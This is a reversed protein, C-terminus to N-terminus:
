IRQHAQLVDVTRPQKPRATPHMQELEQVGAYYGHQINICCYEAMLPVKITHTRSPYEVM